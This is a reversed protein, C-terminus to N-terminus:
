RALSSRLLAAYVPGGPTLHSRYLTVEEIPCAGAALHVGQIEARVAAADRRDPDRFRALTLHASFARNEPSEGIAQLRGEVEDHLDALASAGQVVGLWLVRPAGGAPFVGASGFELAFAPTLLPRRLANQIGAAREDDVEGIFRITLHLNRPEVWKIVRDVHAADLRRRLSSVLRVTALRRPEDLDVAVFLRM